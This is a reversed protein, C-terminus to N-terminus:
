TNYKDVHLLVEPNEAITETTLYEIVLPEGDFLLNEKMICEMTADM